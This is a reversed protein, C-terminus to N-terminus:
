EFIVGVSRSAAARVVGESTGSSRVLTNIWVSIVPNTCPGMQGILALSGAADRRVQVTKRKDQLNHALTSFSGDAVAPCAAAAADLNQAWAHARLAPLCQCMVCALSLFVRAGWSATEPKQRFM